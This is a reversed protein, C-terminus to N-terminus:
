KNGFNSYYKEYTYDILSKLKNEDVYDDLGGVFPSLSLKGDSYAGAGSFGTTINCPECNACTGTHRKPCERNQIKKGKEFLLIRYDKKSNSLELATFIGAPGAGIIIVTKKM